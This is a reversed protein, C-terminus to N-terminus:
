FDNYGPCQGYGFTHALQAGLPTDSWSGYKSKLYARARLMGDYTSTGPCCGKCGGGPPSGPPTTSGGAGLLLVLIIILAINM